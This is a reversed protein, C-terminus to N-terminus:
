PSSEEGADVLDEREAAGLAAVGHADEGEEGVGSGDVGDQAVEVQGGGWWGDGGRACRRLVVEFEVGLMGEHEILSRGEVGSIWLGNRVELEILGSVGSVPTELGLRTQM